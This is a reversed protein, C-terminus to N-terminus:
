LLVEGRRVGTAVAEARSHVGFKTYISSLHFKVTSRSIDLREGIATNGLGDALAQLVAREKETLRASGPDRATHEGRMESRAATTRSVSESTAPDTVYVSAGAANAAFRVDAHAGLAERLVRRAWPDSVDVFVRVPRPREVMRRARPRFSRAKM